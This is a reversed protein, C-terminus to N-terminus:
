KRMGKEEWVSGWLRARLDYGFWGMTKLLSHRLYVSSEVYELRDQLWYVETVSHPTAWNTM